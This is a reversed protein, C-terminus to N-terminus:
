TAASGGPEQLWAGIIMAAEHEDVASQEANEEWVVTRFLERERWEELREDLDESNAEADVMESVSYRLRLEGDVLHYRDKTPFLCQMPMTRDLEVSGLYAAAEKRMAEDIDAAQDRTVGAVVAVALNRSGILTALGPITFTKWLAPERALLHAAVDRAGVGSPPYFSAVAVGLDRRYEPVVRVVQRLVEWDIDGPMVQDEAFFLVVGLREMTEKRQSVDVCLPMQGESSLENRFDAVKLEHPVPLTASTAYEFMAQVDSQPQGFVLASVRIRGDWVAAVYGLGAFVQPDQAADHLTTVATTTTLWQPDFSVVLGHDGVQCVLHPGDAFDGSPPEAPVKPPNVCQMSAEFSVLTGRSVRGITRDDIVVAEQDWTEFLPRAMEVFYGPALGQGHFPKATDIGARKALQMLPTGALMAARPFNVLDVNALRVRWAHASRRMDESLAQPNPDTEPSSVIGPINM